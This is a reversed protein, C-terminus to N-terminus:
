MEGMAEFDPTLVFNGMVKGMGTGTGVPKASRNSSSGEEGLGEVIMTTTLYDTEVGRGLELLTGGWDLQVKGSKRVILKGVFGEETV